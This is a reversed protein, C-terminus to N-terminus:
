GVLLIRAPEAGAAQCRAMAVVVLQDHRHTTRQIGVAHHEIERIHLVGDAALDGGLEIKTEKVLDPRLKVQGAGLAPQGGGLGQNQRDAVAEAGVQGEHAQAKVLLGAEPDVHEGGGGGIGHFGEERDAGM